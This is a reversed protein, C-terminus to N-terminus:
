RTGIQSSSLVSATRTPSSGTLMNKCQERACAEANAQRTPSDAGTVWYHLTFDATGTPSSTETYRMAVQWHYQAYTM